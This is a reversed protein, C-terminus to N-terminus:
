AEPKPAPLQQKMENVAAELLPRLEEPTTPIGKKTLAASAEQLAKEYKAPGDLDEYVQQIFRVTTGAVQLKTEDDFFRQTLNKLVIGLYGFLATLVAALLELGYHELFEVFM